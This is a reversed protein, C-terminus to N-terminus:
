TAGLMAGGWIWVALPVPLVALAITLITWGPSYLRSLGTLMSIGGGGGIIGNGPVNLLLAFLLYRGPLAFPRLRRPLVNQMQNLREERTLGSSRELLQCVRKMRLENFIRHLWAYSLNQGAIYAVTLGVVTALYVFPAVTDGRMVLLAIGIEVGPVFPVAILLAYIVLFFAIAGIMMGSSIDEAIGGASDMAWDLATILLFAAAAIVAFRLAMRWLVSSLPPPDAPQIQHTRM